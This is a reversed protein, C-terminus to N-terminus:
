QIDGSAFWKRGGWVLDLLGEASLWEAMKEDLLITRSLNICSAGYSRDAQHGGDDLVDLDPEFSGALAAKSRGNRHAKKYQENRRCRQLTLPLYVISISM